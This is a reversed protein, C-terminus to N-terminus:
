NGEFKRSTHIVRQILVIDENVLEYMIRYNGELLERRTPDTMEPIVRGLKPFSILLGTKQYIKSIILSAYHESYASLYEAIEEIEATATQTWIVQAM